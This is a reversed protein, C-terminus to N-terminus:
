VHRGVVCGVLVAATAAVAVVTVVVLGVGVGRGVERWDLPWFRRGRDIWLGDQSVLKELVRTRVPQRLNGFDVKLEDIRKPLQIGYARLTLITAVGAM